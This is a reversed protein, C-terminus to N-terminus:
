DEKSNMDISRLREEIEQSLQDEYRPYHRHLWAKVKLAIKGLDEKYFAPHTMREDRVMKGVDLHILHDGVCGINHMVGHDIDYIGKKYESLYLDFLQQIRKQATALDGQDLLRSLAESLMDGKEQIVYSTKELDISRTFGWKDTLSVRQEIPSPNLQIFVLGSEQRHNEYALKHGSFALFLKQERKAQHKQRYSHFLSDPLLHVFLSPRFRRFKFLKLVYRHDESVFVISQGGEGLYSFPQNLIANLKAQSANDLATVAWESRYSQASTLHVPRLDDTLFLFLGTLMLGTALAGLLWFRRTQKSEM